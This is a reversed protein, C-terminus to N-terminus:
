SRHRNLISLSHLYTYSHFTYKYMFIVSTDLIFGWVFSRDAIRTVTSIYLRSTTVGVEGEHM